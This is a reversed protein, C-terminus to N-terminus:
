ETLGGKALVLELDDAEELIRLPVGRSRLFFAVERCKELVEARPPPWGAIPPFSFNNVLMFVPRVARIRFAELAEETAALDLFVTGSLVAATSGRPVSPLHHLLVEHLPMQGDLAADILQSLAFARHDEGRGPPVALPRRGEGFLQVFSGAREASWVASAATRVLYELTSKRGTGARHRQDLDLFLTLYPALDVELEKVALAGRRATAPWHIRRPDDGPRWDRVGLYVLSQGAREATSGGASFSARAGGPALDAVDYVRPFVAFDELAPFTRRSEFLGSPDRGFAQLPGVAYHGWHRSCWSAYSLRRHRDPRLPGPELLRQETSLAPGFADAIEILGLPRSAEIVLDVRVEDGEFANPHLERRLGLGRLSRDALLRSLLLFLIWGAGLAALSSLRLAAALVLLVPIAVFLLNRYLPSGAPEV